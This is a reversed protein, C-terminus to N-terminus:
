KTILVACRAGHLVKQSVSGLVSGVVAGYGHSGMVVLDINENEVEQLIIRGPNGHLKKKKLTIGSIDIGELTSTLAFEGEREVQEPSAVYSEAEGFSYIIPDVMVSLLEIEANFKRALETAAKLARKSHESRDTAVLIKKFM